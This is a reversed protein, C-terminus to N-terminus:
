QEFSRDSRLDVLSDDSVDSLESGTMLSGFSSGTVGGAKSMRSSSWRIIRDVNPVVLVCDSLHFALPLLNVQAIDPPRPSPKSEM